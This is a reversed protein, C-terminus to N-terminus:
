IELDITEQLAGIGSQEEGAPQEQKASDYAQNTPEEVDPQIEKEFMDFYLKLNAILYDFFKEQDEPNSLLDYADVIQKEIKKFTSYAMNRGTTDKGEIGFAELPDEEGEEEAKEADTRIDIFMDDDEPGAEDASIQINIDEDLDEEPTDEGADNNIEVPTLTKVVADIIHARYSERQEESTTLIKYDDEIQPIIKKLLDELLNIGTSKHPAPDNDPTKAEKIDKEGSLHKDVAAEAKERSMPINEMVADVLEQRTADPNMKLERRIHFDPTGSRRIVPIKAEDLEYQLFERIIARLKQEETQTNKNKKKVLSIL